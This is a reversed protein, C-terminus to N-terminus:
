RKKGDKETPALRHARQMEKKSLRSGMLAPLKKREKDKASQSAGGHGPNDQSLGPPPRTKKQSPANSSAPTGATVFGPRRSNSAYRRM